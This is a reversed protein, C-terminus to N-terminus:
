TITPEGHSYLKKKQNRSLEIDSPCGAPPSPL